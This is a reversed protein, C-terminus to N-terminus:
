DAPEHVRQLMAGLAELEAGSFRDVFRERVGAIHTDNAEKLRARGDETIQCLLGRADEEFRCRSVLGEREMRDVLRTLGSRSLLVSDALESMRLQKEPSLELQILVDYWTLPLGHAEQLEVDLDRILQAHARLFGSWATLERESLPACNAKSNTTTPAM